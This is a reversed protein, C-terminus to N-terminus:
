YALDYYKPFSIYDEISFILLQLKPGSASRFQRPAKRKVIYWAHFLIPLFSVQSSSYRGFITIFISTILQFHFLSNFATALDQHCFQATLQVLPLKQAQCYISKM